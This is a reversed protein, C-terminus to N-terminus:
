KHCSDSTGSPLLQLVQEAAFITLGYALATRNITSLFLSGGPRLTQCCQSLFSAPDRVHELVESACVIDFKEELSVM